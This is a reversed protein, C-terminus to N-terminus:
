FYISPDNLCSQQAMVHYRIIVLHFALLLGTGLAQGGALCLLMHSLRLHDYSNHLLPHMMMMM